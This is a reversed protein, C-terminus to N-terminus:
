SWSINESFSTNIIRKYKQNPASENLYFELNFSSGSDLVNVFDSHSLFVESYQKFVNSSDHISISDISFNQKAGTYAQTENQILVMDESNLYSETTSKQDFTVFVQDSVSLYSIFDAM